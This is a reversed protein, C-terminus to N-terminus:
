RRIVKFALNTGLDREFALTLWLLALPELLRAKVLPGADIPEFGLDAALESALAKAENDDGCYLMTAAGEPYLPDVMNGHGTSNFIKVVRAGPAWRAVQEGGSGDRGLLLGSADHSFPNTCDLLIRGSLDGAAQLADETSIWPTALAVVPGFTAADRVTGLSAQGRCADVLKRHRPDSANRVGIVLDHDHHAWGAALSGGVMGAGIIGIKM